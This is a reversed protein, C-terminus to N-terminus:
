SQLVLGLQACCAQAHALWADAHPSLGHHVHLPALRSTGGNERAWQAAVWLLVTSDLGGSYAVALTDHAADFGSASLSDQLAQQLLVLTTHRAHRPHASM